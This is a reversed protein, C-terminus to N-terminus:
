REKAIYEGLVITANLRENSIRVEISYKHLLNGSFLALASALLWPWFEKM